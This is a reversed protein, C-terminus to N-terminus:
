LQGPINFHKQWNCFTEEVKFWCFIDLSCVAPVRIRSKWGCPEKVKSMNVNNGAQGKELILSRESCLRQLWRRRRAQKMWKRHPGAFFFFFFEAHRQQFLGLCSSEEPLERWGAAAAAWKFAFWVLHCCAASCRGNRRFYRLLNVVCM